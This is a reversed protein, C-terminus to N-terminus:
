GQEAYEPKLARPAIRATAKRVHVGWAMARGGVAYLLSKCVVYLMLRPYLIRQLPLLSLNLPHEGELIYALLGAV